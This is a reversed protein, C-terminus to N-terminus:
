TQSFEITLFITGVSILVITVSVFCSFKQKFIILLVRERIMPDKTVILIKHIIHGTKQAANQLLSCTIVMGLVNIGNTFLQYGLYIISEM